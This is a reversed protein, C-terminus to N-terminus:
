QTPQDGDRKKADAEDSKDASSDDETKKSLSSLGALPSRPAPTGKGKLAGLKLGGVGPTKSVGGLSSWGENVDGWLSGGEKKQKGLLGGSRAGTLTPTLVGRGLGGSSLTNGGSKGTLPPLGM